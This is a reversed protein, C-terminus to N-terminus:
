AARRHRQRIRRWGAVRDRGNQLFTFPVIRRIWSHKDKDPYFNYDVYMWAGTVGTRNLFATDMVFLRDYHELQTSFNVRRSNFSYNAQM